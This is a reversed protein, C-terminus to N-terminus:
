VAATEAADERRLGTRRTHPRRRRRRFTAPRRHPLSTPRGVLM